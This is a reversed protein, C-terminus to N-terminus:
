VGKHYGSLVSSHLFVDILENLLNLLKSSIEEGLQLLLALWVQEILAALWVM